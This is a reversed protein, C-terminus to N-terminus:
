LVESIARGAVAVAVCATSTVAGRTLAGWGERRAAALCSVCRVAAHETARATNELEGLVAWRYSRQSWGAVRRGVVGCPTDGALEPVDSTISITAGWSHPSNSLNHQLVAPVRMAFQPTRQSVLAPWSVAAWM